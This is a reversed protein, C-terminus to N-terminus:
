SLITRQLAAHQADRIRPWDSDILSFWATDRNQDKVILHQRFLGEFRFGFRTAAAKSRINRNDCKWEVRRYGLTDFLYRLMLHVTEATVASRQVDVDYWIHGLEARGHQAAISMITIIGVARGTAHNVVTHFLPDASGQQTALWSRFADLDAFPGYPLYQWTYLHESSKHGAEYLEAADREIDLPRVTVFTGTHTCPEPQKWIM